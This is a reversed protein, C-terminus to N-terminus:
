LHTFQSIMRLDNEYFARLDDVQYRLMALRELGLGFAFGNFQEPDIKGARLVNPHVMGCGLVELWGTHSCIRCGKGQCRVCTIDVEASPETFPFYSARFRIDLSKEFYYQMLEHLLSKLDAMTLNPSIVLGEVQHFMPTHTVDSDCRYVRGPAIMKFPPKHNEMYRIQTPSTHTRLLSGDGFYFTDAMAKAPHHAPVNLAEFNYYDSEVEPGEAIEFGLKLFFEEVRERAKSIPHVHGVRSDRGPLTVDVAENALRQALHAQELVAQKAELAEELTAKATNIVQGVQKREEPTLSKMEKFFETLEGKKGLVQVRIANLQQISGAGQIAILARQEIQKIAEM